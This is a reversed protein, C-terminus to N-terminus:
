QVGISVAVANTTGDAFGQALGNKWYRARDGEYGAV